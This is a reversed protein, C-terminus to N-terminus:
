PRILDALKLQSASDSDTATVRLGIRKSGFPYPALWTALASCSARRWGALRVRRGGM